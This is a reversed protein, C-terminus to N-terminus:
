YILCWIRDEWTVMALIVAAFLSFFWTSSVTRNLCGCSQQYKSCELSGFLLVLLRCYKSQKDEGCRLSRLQTLFDLEPKQRGPSSQRVASTHPWNKTPYPSNKLLQFFFYQCFVELHINRKHLNSKLLTHWSTETALMQMIFKSQFYSWYASLVTFQLPNPSSQKLLGTIVVHDASFYLTKNTKKHSRRISSHM